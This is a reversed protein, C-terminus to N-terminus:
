GCCGREKAPSSENVNVADEKTKNKPYKRVIDDYKNVVTAFLQDINEGLKASCEVYAIAGIQRALQSAEASTVKRDTATLDMKTGVLVIFCHEEPNSSHLKDSWRNVSEYSKRDTLDFTVVAAGAGRCYFSSLSDYREILYDEGQGATDWLGLQYTRDEVSITKKFYSAGITSRTDGYYNDLFRLLICTKGVGSDGLLVCKLDVKDRNSLRQENAM